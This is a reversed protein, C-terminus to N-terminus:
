EETKVVEGTKKDVEYWGFTATHSQGNGDDVEEYAQVTYRGMSPGEAKFKVKNRPSKRKVLEMWAKVEPRASVLRVAKSEGIDDVSAPQEAATDGGAPQATGGTLPQDLNAPNVPDPTIATAGAQTTGASTAAATNGATVAPAPAPVPEPSSPANIQLFYVGASGALLLGTLAALVMVLRAGKGQSEARKIRMAAQADFIEDSTSGGQEVGCHPCRVRNGIEKGCNGCRIIGSSGDMNGKGTAM